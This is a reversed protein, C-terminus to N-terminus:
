IGNELISLEYLGGFVFFRSQSTFPCVFPCGSLTTGYAIRWSQFSTFGVLSSFDLNLLSRVCPRVVMSLPVM